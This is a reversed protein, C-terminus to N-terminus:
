PRHRQADGDVDRGDLEAVAIEGAKDLRDQLLGPQRRVEGVVKWTGAGTKKLVVFSPTTAM